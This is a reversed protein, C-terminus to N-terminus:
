VSMQIGLKKLPVISSCQFETFFHRNEYDSNYLLNASLCFVVKMNLEQWDYNVTIEEGVSIKSISKITKTETEENWAVM